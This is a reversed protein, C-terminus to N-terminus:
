KYLYENVATLLYKKPDSAYQWFMVGAMHRDKVYEGKYKISEEDDYTVLQEQPPMGCTLLKPKDCWYSILLSYSM